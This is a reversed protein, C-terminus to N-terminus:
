IGGPWHSEAKVSNWQEVHGDDRAFVCLHPDGADPHVVVRWGLRQQDDMARTIFLRPGNDNDPSSKDLDVILAGDEFEVCTRFGGVLHEAKHTAAVQRYHAQKAAAQLAKEFTLGTGGPPTASSASDSVALPATEWVFQCTLCHHAICEKLTTAYNGEFNLFDSKWPLDKRFPSSVGFRWKTGEARHQRLNNSSGCKPCPQECPKM